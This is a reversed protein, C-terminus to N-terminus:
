HDIQEFKNAALISLTMPDLGLTAILTNGAASSGASLMAIMLHDSGVYDHGHNRAVMDSPGTDHQLERFAEDLLSEIRIDDTKSM